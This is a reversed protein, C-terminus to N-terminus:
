RAEGEVPVGDLQLDSVEIREEAYYKRLDPPGGKDRRKKAVFGILELAEATNTGLYGRDARYVTLLHRVAVAALLIFLLTELSKDGLFISCCFAALILGGGLLSTGASKQAFYRAVHLHQTRARDAKRSKAIRVRMLIIVALGIVASIIALVIGKDALIQSLISSLAAFDFEISSPKNSSVPPVVERVFAGLMGRINTKADDPGRDSMDTHQYPTPVVTIGAKVCVEDDPVVGPDAKFIPDSSRLSLSKFNGDTVLPVHLNDLTVAAMVRNTHLKAFYMSVDGGNSHGVIFLHNFDANLEVKKLEEAAFLINTIGREYVPQRGAYPEGIKTPLPEDTGLDHQISVALYGYAAFVNTLFSYETFRIGEGHSIIAVPLKIMGARAQMEKDRRVTLDVVVPRNGRAPDYFTLTEHRIIWKTATFYGVVLVACVSLLIVIARKM